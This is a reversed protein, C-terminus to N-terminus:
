YRCTNFIHIILHLTTNHGLFPVYKIGITWYLGNADYKTLTTTYMWQFLTEPSVEAAIEGEGRRRRMHHCMYTETAWLSGGDAKTVKSRTFLQQQRKVENGEHCLMAWKLETLCKSMDSLAHHRGVGILLLHLKISLATVLIAATATMDHRSRNRLWDICQEDSSCPIIM